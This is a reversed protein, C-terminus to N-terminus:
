PLEGLRASRVALLDRLVASSTAPGGGAPGEIVRQGLPHCDFRVANDTGRVCLPDSEPVEDVGVSVTKSASAVMRLRTGRKRARIRTRSMGRIGQLPLVDKLTFNRGLVHNALIVIKCAADFGDIDLAPDAEAYGLRKAEELASEFPIDREEMESLIFNSTANLVGRVSVIEDTRALIDAVELVPLGGGVCASYRVMRHRRGADALLERYHLALPVKNATIVDKRSALAARIHSFSPEGGDPNAPTLEVLADAETEKILSLLGVPGIEDGVRGTKKKRLLLRRIDLGRGDASASASDAIAVVRIGRGQNERCLRTTLAKGVTGLGAIFVRFERGM